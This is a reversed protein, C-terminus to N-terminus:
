RGARMPRRFLGTRTRPRAMRPSPGASAPLDDRLKASYHSANLEGACARRAFAILHRAIVSASLTEEIRGAKLRPWAFAWFDARYDALVGMKWVIAALMRLGRLVDRATFQGPAYVRPRRHAYTARSQFDFRSFLRAPEYAYSLCTRFDAIV